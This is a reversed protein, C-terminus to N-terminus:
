YSMLLPSAGDLRLAELGFVFFFFRCSPLTHLCQWGKFVSILSPPLRHASLFVTLTPCLFRGPAKILTLPSSARRMADEPAPLIEKEDSKLSDAVPQGAEKVAKGPSIFSSNSNAPNNNTEQPLGLSWKRAAPQTANEKSPEANGTVSGYCSLPRHPRVSRQGVGKPPVESSSPAAIAPPNSVFLSLTSRHLTGNREPESANVASSPGRDLLHDSPEANHSWTDNFAGETYSHRYAPNRSRPRYSESHETVKIITAKRRHVVTDLAHNDPPTGTRRRSPGPSSVVRKETVKVITAKREVMVQRSSPDMPQHDLPPSPSESSRSSGPLSASRSVKRSSITISSFGAKNRPVLTAAASSTQIHSPQARNNAVCLPATAKVPQVSSTRQLPTHPKCTTNTGELLSNTRCPDASTTRCLPSHKLPETTKILPPKRIPDSRTGAPPDDPKGGGPFGSM